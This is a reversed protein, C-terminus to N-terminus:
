APLSADERAASERSTLEAVQVTCCVLLARWDFRLVASAYRLRQEVRLGSAALAEVQDALPEGTEGVAERILLVGDPKLLRHLHEIRAADCVEDAVCIVDFSADALETSKGTRGRDLERLSMVPGEFQQRWFAELSAHPSVYLGALKRHTLV